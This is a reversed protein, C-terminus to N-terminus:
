YEWFSVAAINALVKLRDKSRCSMLVEGKAPNGDFVHGSFSNGAPFVHSLPYPM